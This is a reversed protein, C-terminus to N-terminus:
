QPYIDARMLQKYMLRLIIESMRTRYIKLDSLADPQKNLLMDLAPGSLLGPLNTPMNEFELLEKTIPDIMNQTMNDINFNARAGYTDAIHTRIENPDDLSKIKYKLKNVILGNVILREKTTDPRLVLYDGDALEVFIDGKVKEKTKVYDIGFTNLTSLLGKQSWMYIILPMKTGSLYISLYPISKKTRTLMEQPNVSHIKSLMVDFLFEFRNQGIPEKTEKNILKNIEPDIVVTKQLGEYIMNGTLYIKEGDEFIVHDDTAERILTPYRQTVYHVIDSLDSVNFKMNEVGLRIIAYNSLIRVDNKDTKTLPKVHQQSSFIYNNGNIKFYKENVPSPVFLSVTYKEKNGTMNQLTIKYDTYRDSDTDVYDWKIDIIKIPHNSQSELASFVKKINEHIQQTFEYSQRHQGTTKDIDIIEKPNFPVTKMKDPFKLPVSYVDMQSLKSFLLAPNQIYSPDITDTNHITYNVAKLVLEEAKEQSPTTNTEKIYRDISSKVNAIVDPNSVKFTRMVKNLARNDIGSVIQDTPTIEVKLKAPEKISPKQTDVLKVTTSKKTDFLNQPESLNKVIKTLISESGIEVTEDSKVKEDSIAPEDTIEDAVEISEVLGRLYNIQPLIPQVQGNEDIELVPITRNQVSAFVFTDAIKFKEFETSLLNKIRRFDTLVNYMFDNKSEIDLILYVTKLPEATKIKQYESSLEGFLFSLVKKESYGISQAMSVAESLMSLDYFFFQKLKNVISVKEIIKKENSEINASTVSSLVRLKKTVNTNETIRKKLELYHIRGNFNRKFYKFIKNPSIIGRCNNLLLNSDYIGDWVKRTNSPYFLIISDKDVLISNKVVTTKKIASLQM